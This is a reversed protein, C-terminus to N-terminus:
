ATHPGNSDTHVGAQTFNGTMTINGTIKIDGEFEHLPAVHRIKTGVVSIANGHADYLVTYGEGTNRPRFDPHEFGMAWMLDPRGSVGILHGVSGPPAHSSFGFPLNRGVKTPVQNKLGKFDLRQFEGDDHTKFLKARLIQTRGIDADAYYSM